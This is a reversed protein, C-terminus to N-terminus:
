HLPKALTTTLVTVANGQSMENPWTVSIAVNKLETGASTVTYTAPYAGGSVTHTGLNLDSHDFSRTRLFELENRAFHMVSMQTRNAAVNRIAMNFTLAAAGLGFALIVIAVMAEVLTFGATGEKREEGTM